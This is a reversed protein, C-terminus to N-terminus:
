NMFGEVMGQDGQCEGFGTGNLYSGLMVELPSGDIMFLDDKCKVKTNIGAVPEECWVGKYLGIGM